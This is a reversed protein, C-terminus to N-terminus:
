VSREFLGRLRPIEKRNGKGYTLSENMFIGPSAADRITGAEGDRTEQMGDGTGQKAKVAGRGRRRREGAEHFRLMAPMM